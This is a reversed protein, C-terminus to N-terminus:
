QALPQPRPTHQGEVAPDIWLLIPGRGRRWLIAGVKGIEPRIRLVPLLRQHPQEHLRRPLARRGPEYDPARHIRLVKGPRGVDMEHPVQRWPLM